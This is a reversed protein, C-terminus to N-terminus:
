NQSVERSKDVDLWLLEEDTYVPEEPEPLPKPENPKASPMASVVPKAISRPAYKPMQNVDNNCYFWQGIKDYYLEIANLRTGRKDKMVWEVTKVMDSKIDAQFDPVLALWTDVTFRLNKSWTMSDLKPPINSQPKTGGPWLKNAEEATLHHLVVVACDEDIAIEKLGSVVKMLGSAESDNGGESTFVHWLDDVVVLQPRWQKVARRIARVTRAQENFMINGHTTMYQDTANVLCQMEGPTLTGNRYKVYEIATTGFVRRSVMGEVPEELTIYLSRQGGYGLTECSQLLRASKGISNDGILITIMKKPYGGYVRDCTSIGTPVSQPKGSLLQEKLREAADKASVNTTVAPAPKSEVLADFRKAVTDMDATLDYALQAIGNAQEVMRRRIAYGEVINAYHEANMSFPVQNIMATLYASGGAEDLTGAQKMDESVTMLDIPVGACFLRVFSEYIWQNRHIYFDPAQLIDFIESFGDPNIFVSGIVAEEADKSHPIITPMPATKQLFQTDEFEPEPITM